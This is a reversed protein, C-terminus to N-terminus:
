ARPGASPQRDPSSLQRILTRCLDEYDFNVEQLSTKADVLSDARAMQELHSCSLALRRGGLQDGSGKIDHAIRAVAPADGIEMALRLEVLLPGTEAVFQGVLEALFDQETAEGLLRLEDFVAPDITLDDGSARDVIPAALSPAPVHGVSRAVLALLTEKSVPKAVYSDM